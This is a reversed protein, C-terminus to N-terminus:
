KILDSLIKVLLLSLVGLMVPKIIGSGRKLALGAGIWNGLIGFMAAPIGLSYIVKKNLIFTVLAGINSSLNVIKATGSASVHDFNLVSVYLIILFTGTGPGFFGDYMGIILGVFFSIVYTKNINIKGIKTKSSENKRGILVFLAAVPILVTLIIKLTNSSFLLAVKAGLYSGLIAGIVSPVAVRYVIAKNKAYRLTSFITGITSSLKNTGLAYHSSVGIFLYAPLSILGGGGAISDVLGALFVLPFLILKDVTSFFM